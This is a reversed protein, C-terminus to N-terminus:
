FLYEPFLDEKRARTCEREAPNTLFVEVIFATVRIETGEERTRLFGENAKDLRYFDTRIRDCSISLSSTCTRTRNRYLAHVVTRVGCRAYTRPADHTSSFAYLSFFDAHMELTWRLSPLEAFAFTHAQNSGTLYRRFVARFSPPACTREREAEELACLIAVASGPDGGRECYSRLIARAGAGTHVADQALVVDRLTGADLESVLDSPPPFTKFWQVCARYMNSDWMDYSVCYRLVSRVSDSEVAEAVIRDCYAEARTFLLRRALFHLQLPCDSTEAVDSPHNAYFVRFLASVVSETIWGSELLAIRVIPMRGEAFDSSYLLREFYKSQMLVMRHLQYVHVAAGEPRSVDTVHVEVDSTEASDFQLSIHRALSTTELAASSKSRANEVAPCLAAIRVRM